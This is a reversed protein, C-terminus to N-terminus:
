ERHSLKDDGRRYVRRPQDRHPLTRSKMESLARGVCGWRDLPLDFGFTYIKGRYERLDPANVPNFLQVAMKWLDSLSFTPTIWSLYDIFVNSGDFIEIGQGGPLAPVYNPVLRQKVPKSNFWCKAVDGVFDIVDINKSVRWNELNRATKGTYEASGQSRAELKMAEIQKFLVEYVKDVPLDAM